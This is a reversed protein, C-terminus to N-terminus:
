EDFVEVTDSYETFYWMLEDRYKEIAAKALEETDFFVKCFEQFRKYSAVKIKKYEHDFYIYFKYQYFNRWDIKQKRGEASFRRLNRMLADARANDNALQQDTHYNAINYLCDDYPADDIQAVIEGKTNCVYYFDGKHREYGTKRPKPEEKVEVLQYKKGDIEIINTETM